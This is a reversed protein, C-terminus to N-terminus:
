ITIALPNLFNELDRGGLTSHDENIVHLKNLRRNDQYLNWVGEHMGVVINIPYVREMARIMRLHMAKAHGGVFMTPALHLGKKNDRLVTPADDSHWSHATIYMGIFSVMLEPFPPMSKCEHAAIVDSSSVRYFSRKGNAFDKDKVKEIDLNRKVVALDPAFSIMEDLNSYIKLQQRIEYESEGIKAVIFSFNDPNGNPSTLYRFENDVTLNEVRLEFGVREYYNLLAHFCGIEFSASLERSKKSFTFSHEEAFAAVLVDVSSLWSNDDSM